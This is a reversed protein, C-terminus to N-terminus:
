RWGRVLEDKLSYILEALEPLERFVAYAIAILALTAGIKSVVHHAIYFSEEGFWSYAFAVIVFVNRFLNLVYITPVSLMFAKFRRWADANIGMTAGSFLTISEIATCALIIKVSKGNLYLMDGENLVSYGILNALSATLAATTEILLNGLLPILAFPYYFILALVSFASVEVFTRSNKRLIVISMYLFFAFALLFIATNYYDASAIYDPIKILCAFSFLAWGVFGSFGKSTFVYVTLPILSLAAVHEALM